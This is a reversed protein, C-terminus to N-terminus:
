KSSVLCRVRTPDHTEWLSSSRLNRHQKGCLENEGTGPRTDQGYQPKPPTHVEWIKKMSHHTHWARFHSTIIKLRHTPQSRTKEESLSSHRCANRSLQTRQDLPISPGVWLANTRAWKKATLSNVTTFDTSTRRLGSLPWNWFQRETTVQERM